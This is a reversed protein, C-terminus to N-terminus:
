LLFSFFLALNPSPQACRNSRRPNTKDPCSGPSRGKKLRLVDGRASRPIPNDPTVPNRRIRLLQIRHLRLSLNQSEFTIRNATLSNRFNIQSARLTPQTSALPFPPPASGGSDRRPWRKLSTAFGIREFTSIFPRGSRRLGGVLPHRRRYLLAENPFKRRLTVADVRSETDANASMNLEPIVTPAGSIGAREDQQRPFGRVFAKM